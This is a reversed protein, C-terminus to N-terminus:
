EPKEQNSKISLYAQVNAVSLALVISRLADVHENLDLLKTDVAKLGVRMAEGPLSGTGDFGAMIAASHVIENVNLCGIPVVGLKRLHDITFAIEDAEAAEVSAILEVVSNAAEKNHIAFGQYFKLVKKLATLQDM